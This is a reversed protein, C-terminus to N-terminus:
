GGFFDGTFKGNKYGKGSGKQGVKVVSGKRPAVKGNGPTSTKAATKSKADKV